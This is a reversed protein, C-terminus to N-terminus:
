PKVMIKLKNSSITGTWADIKTQIVDGTEDMELYEDVTSSLSFGIAYEGSRSFCEKLIDDRVEHSSESRGSSRLQWEGSNGLRHIPSDFHVDLILEEGTKLIVFDEKKPNRISSYLIAPEIVKEQAGKRYVYGRLSWGTLMQHIKPKLVRTPKAMSNRIRLKIHIPEGKAFQPRSEAVLQLKDSARLKSEAVMQLENNALQNKLYVAALGIM